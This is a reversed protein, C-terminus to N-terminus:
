VVLIFPSGIYEQAPFVSVDDAGVDQNSCDGDLSSDWFQAGEEETM